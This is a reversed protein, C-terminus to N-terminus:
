MEIPLLLLIELLLVHKRPILMPHKLIFYKLRKQKDIKVELIEGLAHKKKNRISIVLQLSPQRVNVTRCSSSGEECMKTSEM